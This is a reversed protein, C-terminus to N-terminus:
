RDTWIMAMGLCTAGVHPTVHGAHLDCVAEVGLPDLAMEGCRLDTEPWDDWSTTM